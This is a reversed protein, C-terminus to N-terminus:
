GRVTANGGGRRCFIGQVLAARLTRLVVGCTRLAGFSAQQAFPRGELDLLSTCLPSPTADRQKALQVARPRKRHLIEPQKIMKYLIRM